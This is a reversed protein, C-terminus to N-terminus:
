SCGSRIDGLQPDNPGIVPAPAEEIVTLRERFEDDRRDLHYNQAAVPATAALLLALTAAARKFRSMRTM